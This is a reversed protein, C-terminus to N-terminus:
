LNERKLKGFVIQRHTDVRYPYCTVLTVIPQNGPALVWVDSPEVVIKEYVEYTYWRGNMAQVRIEDGPELLGIDCLIEGYIDNHGSLVMNRDEGPNASGLLHGVGKQLQFWDDGGYISAAIGIAPIEITTPSSSPREVIEAQPADNLQAMADPRISAPLEDFNFAGVGGNYTHGSPIVYDALRVRLEPTPSSTSRMLDADRQVQASKEELAEIKSNENIVLYIGLVLVAMISAVGVIEIGLLLRDLLVHPQSQHASANTQAFRHQAPLSKTHRARRQRMERELEDEFRPVEHTIDYTTPPEVPTVEQAAEHQQPQPLSQPLEPWQELPPQITTLLRRGRSDFQQLRKQRAERRRIALLQELEQITLEEAPRKFRM